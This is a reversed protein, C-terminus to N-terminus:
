FQVLADMLVIDSDDPQVPVCMRWGHECVRLVEAKAKECLLKLNLTM